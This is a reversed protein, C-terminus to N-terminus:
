TGVLNKMKQYEPTGEYPTLHHDEKSKDAISFGSVMLICVVLVSFSVFYRM